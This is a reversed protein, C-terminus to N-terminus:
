TDLPRLNVGSPTRHRNPDPGLSPVEEPEFDHIRADSDCFLIERPQEDAEFLQLRAGRLFELAGAESEGQGFPEDLSLAAAHFDAAFRPRPLTKAAM